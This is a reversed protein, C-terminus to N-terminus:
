PEDKVLVSRKRISKVGKMLSWQSIGKKRERVDVRGAAVGLSPGAYSRWKEGAGRKPAKENWSM